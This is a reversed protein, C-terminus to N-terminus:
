KEGVIVFIRNIDDLTVIGIIKGNREVPMANTSHRQMLRQVENLRATVKVPPIDTRMIESVKADKGKEHIGQIVGRRTVFGRLAGEEMVPFDEQHRHLMVELLKALPTDPSVHVFERALVDRVTYKKITEQVNVQFGESSAAMYIFVAIILLFIHGHVIGIYAFLLAFIHGLRVAIATAEKYSMRYSLIARVVRGGDMPFAPLMNFVALILNIWYIHALVNFSGTYSAQGTLVMFPYMLTEKGLFILLPYYFIIVVLVNSLPGALSILLEQYPKKPIESMSAVGGIPLLTIRKVKIGFHLAVLSHCLEHLTVFFFVGLILVLGKPGLLIFFLLLLLFFTFHIDINIGFVRTLRFSGRM